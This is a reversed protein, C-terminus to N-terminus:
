SQKPMKFDLGRERNAKATAELDLEGVAISETKEGVVILKSGSIAYNEVERQHGDRFVLVMSPGSPELQSTTKERSAPARRAVEGLSMPQGNHEFVTAGTRREQEEAPQEHDLTGHGELQDSESDYPLLISAGYIQGRRRVPIPTPKSTSSPAPPTAVRGAGFSGGHTATTKPASPTASKPNHEQAALPFCAATALSAAM